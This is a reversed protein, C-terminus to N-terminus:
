GPGSSWGSSSGCWGTRRRSPTSIGVLLIKRRSIGRSRAVARVQNIFADAQAAPDTGTTVFHYAGLLMGQRDAAKLFRPFKEDLAPGKASRAILGLAGNARLASLDDPSYGAGARQREKPDWSSVNIVEPSKGVSTGGFGGGCSSLVGAVAGIGALKWIMRGMMGGM